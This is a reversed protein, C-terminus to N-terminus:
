LDEDAPWAKLTRVDFTPDVGQAETLQAITREIYFDERVVSSAPYVTLRETTSPFARWTVTSPGAPAWTYSPRRVPAVGIGLLGLLVARRNM